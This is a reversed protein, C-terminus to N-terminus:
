KEIVYDVKELFINTEDTNSIRRLATRWDSGTKKLAQVVRGVGCNHAAYLYYDLNEDKIQNEIKELDDDEFYLEFNNSKNKITHNGILKQFHDKKHLAFGGAFAINEGFDTTVSQKLIHEYLYRSKEINEVVILSCIFKM